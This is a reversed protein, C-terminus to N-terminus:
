DLLFVLFIADSSCDRGAILLGSMAAGDGLAYVVLNEVAADDYVASLAKQGAAADDINDLLLEVSSRAERDTIGRLETLIGCRDDAQRVYIQKWGSMWAGEGFQEWHAGVFHRYYKLAAADLDEARAVRECFVASGFGAQSPAGYIAQLNLNADTRTM